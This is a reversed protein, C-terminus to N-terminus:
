PVMAPEPMRRRRYLNLILLHGLFPLALARVGLLVGIGTFIVKAPPFAKALLTLMMIRNSDVNMIRALSVGDGLADSFTHLVQVLPDIWSMLKQDDSQEFSKAQDRLLDLVTGVSECTQLESALWVAQLDKGTKNMYEILAADLM